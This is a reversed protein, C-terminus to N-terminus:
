PSRTSGPRSISCRAPASRTTSRTARRHRPGPEDPHLDAGPTTGADELRPVERRHRDVERQVRRQRVALRRGARRRDGGPRAPPVPRAAPHRHPGRRPALLRRSGHREAGRYRQPIMAYHAIRLGTRTTSRAGSPTPRDPERRLAVPSLRPRRPPLQPARYPAARHQARARGRTGRDRDAPDGATMLQRAYRPATCRNRRETARAPRRSRLWRATAVMGVAAAVVISVEAPARYRTVGFTTAAAFTVIVRRPSCPCSRSGAGACASLGAARRVPDAPLLRLARDVIAGPGAGRDVLRLLTTQGPKFLGWMRGVRALVVVPLRTVHDKMYDIAQERPVTRRTRVRRGHALSGPLLQRLLRDVIGYYVSDCNAASLVSGLARVVHVDARQLPHPQVAGVADVLVAGAVCAVVALRIRARWELDRARLALPIAVVPFLLILENRDLAALGCAVVSCSRTAATDTTQWFSYM